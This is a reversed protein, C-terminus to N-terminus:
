HYAKTHNVEESPKKRPLEYPTTESTLKERVEDQKEM